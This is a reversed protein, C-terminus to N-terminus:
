RALQKLVDIFNKFNATLAVNDYGASTEFIRHRDATDFNIQGFSISCLHHTFNAEGKVAYVRQIKRAYEDHEYHRQVDHRQNWWLDQKNVLTIMHLQHQYNCLPHIINDLASLELSRNNGLFMEKTANTVGGASFEPVNQIDKRELSHFGWCTMNIIISRESEQFANYLQAWNRAHFAAQGPPVAIRVFRKDKLKYYETESSLSYNGSIQALGEQGELIKGFTSKGTGACGFVFIKLRGKSILDGFDKVFGGILKREEWIKGLVAGTLPEVFFM